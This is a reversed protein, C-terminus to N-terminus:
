RRLKNIYTNYYITKYNLVQYMQVLSPYDVRDGKCFSFYIPTPTVIM